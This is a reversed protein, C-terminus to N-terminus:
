KIFYFRFCQLIWCKRCIKQKTEDTINKILEGINIVTMCVARKLMENNKFDELSKEKMMEDAIDIEQIIKQLIQVDRHNM